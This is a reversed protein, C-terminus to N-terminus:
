RLVRAVVLAAVQYLLVCVAIDSGLILILIIMIEEPSRQTKLLIYLGILTM